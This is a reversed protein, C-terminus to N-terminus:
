IDFITNVKTLTVCIIVVAVSYIGQINSVIIVAFLVAVCTLKLGIDM